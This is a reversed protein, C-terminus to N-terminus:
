SIDSIAWFRRVGAALFRHEPKALNPDQEFLRLAERRAVELTLTDSLRAIKLEPLGHQRVGLFEGPGRLELDKEALAFGDHTQEMIRLRELSHESPSDALLICYSKYAGRGVRGRFQHLQALGFRDAGEILMVTANPVDIGVEVVSTSVLVDIDGEKFATMTREKEEASMRGHLLGVRLHPYIGKQLRQHEAVAAKADTSDSEEVLPCIIFAQRGESIQSNIFAYIRERNRRDRVTTIIRQRNPPMEDLVSIDLDGYCTLALTRPIPTASMVLLHPQFAGGKARLAGRQSVGFRHQEDVIVLGLRAYDVSDQILAHTGVIVQIRGSRIDEQIRRKRDASLSGVLLASRIRGYQRAVIREDEFVRSISRYHQEALVATPAMIAAQLGNRVTAYMAMVAVITKGSGVDGQLLRSMPESRELDALIDRIARQQAGTLEFPLRQIVEDLKRRPVRLARGRQSRWAHRHGLIGLQLLFFEDFCLRRRAQQLTEASDPFHIQELAAGLNILGASNRVAPPLSDEVCPIWSDLTNKILGRLWRARMGNTLPYVPVLRGTHLLERQLPEWEPSTFVLRGLYEDVRGSIVIEHGVTFRKGLHPQNFWSAEISGTGDGLTVRVISKGSRTRQASVKRVAGVVTVEDGLKLRNVTKSEGFDDYRRPFHYLLDRVTKVGLRVLRKENVPGVGRLTSVSTTLARRDPAVPKARPTARSVAARAASAPAESGMGAPGPPVACSLSGPIASLEATPKGGAPPSPSETPEAAMMGASSDSVRDRNVSLLAVLQDVAQARSEPSLDAYGKLMTVVRDVAVPHTMHEAEQRAEREWYGLFRGLGGIVARDRYNQDRELILIRRLKDYASSM